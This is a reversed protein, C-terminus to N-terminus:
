KGGGAISSQPLLQGSFLFIDNGGVVWHYPYGKLPFYDLYLLLDRGESPAELSFVGYFPPRAFYGASRDPGVIGDLRGRGFIAFVVNVDPPIKQPDLFYFVLFNSVVLTKVSPNQRLMDTAVSAFERYGEIDSLPLKKFYTGMKLPHQRVEYPLEGHEVVYGKIQDFVYVTFVQALLVSCVFLAVISRWIFEWRRGAIQQCGWDLCSAFGIAFVPMSPALYRPEFNATKLVVSFFVLAIMALAGALFPWQMRMNSSLFGVVGLMLWPLYFVKKFRGLPGGYWEKAGEYIKMMEFRWSSYADFGPGVTLILLLYVAGAVYPLLALLWDRKFLSWLSFAVVFFIGEPRVLPMLSVVLAAKKYRGSAQFYLSLAVFINLWAEGFFSMSVLFYLPLLALLLSSTAAALISVGLRRCASYVCYLSFVTLLSKLWRSHLLDGGAISTIIGDGIVAVPLTFNFWYIDPNIWASRAIFFRYADDGWYINGEAVFDLYWWATDGRSLHSVGMYFGLLILGAVMVAMGSRSLSLGTPPFLSFSSRGWRPSSAKTSNAGPM